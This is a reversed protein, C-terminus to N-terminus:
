PQSEENKRWAANKRYRANYPIVDKSYSWRRGSATRGSKYKTQKKRKHPKVKTLNLEEEPRWVYKIDEDPAGPLIDNMGGAWNLLTWSCHYCLEKDMLATGDRNTVTLYLINDIKGIERGCIDCIHIVQEDAGIRRKENQKDTIAQQRIYCGSCVRDGGKKGGECKQTGCMMPYRSYKCWQRFKARDWRADPPREPPTWYCPWPNIIM